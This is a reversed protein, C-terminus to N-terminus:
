HSMAKYQEVDPKMTKKSKLENVQDVRAMEEIWDEMNTCLM